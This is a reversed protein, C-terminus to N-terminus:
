INVFFYRSPLFLIGFLSCSHSENEEIDTRASRFFTQIPRCWLQLNCVGLSSSSLLMSWRSPKTSVSMRHLANLLKMLSYGSAAFTRPQHPPAFRDRAIRRPPVLAFFIPRSRQRPKAIKICPQKDHTQRRRGM